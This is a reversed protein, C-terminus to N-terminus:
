AEISHDKTSIVMQLTINVKEVKLGMWGNERM